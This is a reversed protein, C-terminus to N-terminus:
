SAPQWVKSVGAYEFEAQDKADELTKHWTDTISQWDEDCGFLYFSNEGEYQCIALGFAPGQLVGNVIQECNGTPQVQSDIVAFYIVNAGSIQKPLIKM